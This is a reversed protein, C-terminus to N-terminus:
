KLRALARTALARVSPGDATLRGEARTAAEWHQRAGAQDGQALAAEGLLYQVTGASVGPGDPLSVEKLLAQAERGDGSRLLAAALNLRVIPQLTPDTTTASLAKLVAVTVNAPLSEGTTVLAPVRRLVVGVTTTQGARTRVGLSIQQGPPLSALKSELDLASDIAQSDLQTIVDGPKLGAEAAALGGDVDIVIAGKVDLVDIFAAGLSGRMLVLPAQLRELARTVSEPQDLVFRLEDPETSGPTLLAVRVERSGAAVPQVWALGQAGLADALRRARDRLDAPPDGDALGFWTATVGSQGLVDKLVDAPPAYLLVPEAPALAREVALRPDAEAGTEAALLAFAPRVRGRVTLSAGSDLAVREVARGVNSRFEIVHTGSCVGDITVPAQGRADGDILVAAGAPESDLVLSGVSPKLAVPEVILDGLESITIRKKETLYCDRRFELDFSGTSLDTLMLAAVQDQAIQLHTAVDSAFPAAAATETKGKSVGNVFVETGPPATTLTVVSSVRELTIRLPLSQGAMVTVPQDIPRFGIRSVRLTHAGAAVSIRGNGYPRPVGDVLLQGDAPDLQLEITGITTTKVEDLLAVVRPSVGDALTFGPELGLLARFDSVAGEPNGMGFRARARLEFASILAARSAPDRFAQPELMAVARDLLPLAQEYELADFLRRGEVLEAPEQAWAPSACLIAALLLLMRGASRLSAGGRSRLSRGKERALRALGGGLAFRSAGGQSRLSCGEERTVRALRGGLSALRGRVLPALAGEGRPAGRNIFSCVARRTTM